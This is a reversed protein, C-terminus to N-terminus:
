KLKEGNETGTAALMSALLSSAHRLASFRATLQDLRVRAAESEIQWKQVRHAIPQLAGAHAQAVLLAVSMKYADSTVALGALPGVKDKAQLVAKTVIESEALSLVQEAERLQRRANSDDNIAGSLEVDVAILDALIRNSDTLLQEVTKTMSKFAM